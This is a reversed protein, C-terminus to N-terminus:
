HHSCTGSQKGPCISSSNESACKELVQSAFPIILYRDGDGNAVNAVYAQWARSKELGLKRPVLFPKRIRAWTFKQM